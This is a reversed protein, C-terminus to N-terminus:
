LGTYGEAFYWTKSPGTVGASNHGGPWAENYNFYVAREAILGAGDVGEVLTSVEAQEFGPEADVHITLRSRPLLRDTRTSTHGDSRMFSTRAVAPADSPNMVLVYTDFSGGTYGEALYWKQSPRPVGASNHGGDRGQADFYMAREAIVPRDARVETSVEAAEFGPVDDVRVTKRSAPPLEFSRKVEHGDSRLFFLDVVAATEGPNQVLVYTDYGEATYGEALYWRKSPETVGVSNHGGVNGGYDFYMARECIVDGGEARVMTSVQASELGPVSKLNLTFRSRPAVDFGQEVPGSGERMFTMEVRVPRNGPNQVLVYEDFNPATFGEALYWEPAPAPAGASNHGGKRTGQFNFYLARECIIPVPSSVRASVSCGPMYRNIWATSRAGPEVVWPVTLTEGKENMLEIEVEAKAGGPNM